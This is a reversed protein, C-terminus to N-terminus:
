GRGTPTPFCAAPRRPPQGPNEARLRVSRYYPDGNRDRPYRGSAPLPAYVVLGPYDTIWTLVIERDPEADPVANDSASGGPITM